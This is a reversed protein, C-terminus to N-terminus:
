SQRKKLGNLIFKYIKKILDKLTEGHAQGQERCTGSLELFPLRM